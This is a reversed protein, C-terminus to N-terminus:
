TATVIEPVSRFCEHRAENNEEVEEDRTYQATYFSDAYAQRDRKERLINNGDYLEKIPNPKLFGTHYEFFEKNCRDGNRTWNSLIRDYKMKIKSQRVAHLEAQAADLRYRAEDDGWNEQLDYEADIVEEYQKQFKDQNDKKLQSTFSDSCAKVEKLAEVIKTQWPRNENELIAKKWSTLLLRKEDTSTMMRRNFALKRVTRTGRKHIRLFVPAHDSIHPMSPWIGTQGGISRLFTNVYFRDLRSSVMETNKRRNEWSFKKTTTIRFEQSLHADFLELHITLANWAVCEVQGRSTSPNGGQKDSVQEVM